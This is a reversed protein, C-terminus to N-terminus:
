LVCAYCRGSSGAIVFLSGGHVNVAQLVVADVDPGGGPLWGFAATEGEGLVFSFSRASAPASGLLLLSARPIVDGDVVCTANPKSATPTHLCSTVAYVRITVDAPSAQQWVVRLWSCAGDPNVPNCDDRLYELRVSAPGTPAGPVHLAM